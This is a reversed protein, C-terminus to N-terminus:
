GAAQCDAGPPAGDGLELEREDVAAEHRGSADVADESGGGGGGELPELLGVPQARRPLAIGRRQAGETEGGTGGRVARRRSSRVAVQDAAAAAGVAGDGSAFEERAETAEAEPQDKPDTGPGEARVAKARAKKTTM